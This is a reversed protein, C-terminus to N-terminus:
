AVIGIGAPSRRAILGRAGSWDVIGTAIEVYEADTKVYESRVPLDDPDIVVDVNAAAMFQAEGEPPQVGIRDHGYNDTGTWIIRGTFGLPVKRGRAVVVTQGRSEPRRAALMASEWEHVDHQKSAVAQQDILFQRYAPKHEDALDATASNHDTGGSRTTGVSHEEVRLTEPNWTLAYFDSDDHYNRERSCITLGEHHVSMVIVGEGVYIGRHEEIRGGYYDAYEVGEVTVAIKAVNCARCTLTGTGYGDAGGYSPIGDRDAGSQEYKEVGELPCLGWHKRDYDSVPFIQTRIAM